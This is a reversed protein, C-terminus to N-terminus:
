HNACYDAENANCCGYNANREFKAFIGKLCTHTRVIEFLGGHPDVLGYALVTLCPQYLGGIQTESRAVINQSPSGQLYRLRISSLSNLRLM